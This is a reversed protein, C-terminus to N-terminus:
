CIGITLPGLQLAPRRGVKDFYSNSFFIPIVIWPIQYCGFIIGAFTTDIHRRELELPMVPGLLSFSISIIMGLSVIAVFDCAKM